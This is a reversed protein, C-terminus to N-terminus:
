HGREAITEGASFASAAARVALAGLPRRPHPRFPRSRLEQGGFIAAVLDSQFLGVLIWKIGGVVILILTTLDIAKM